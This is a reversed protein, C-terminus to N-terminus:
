PNPQCPPGDVMGGARGEVVFGLLVVVILTVLSSIALTVPPPPDGPIHPGAATLAAAGVVMGGVLFAKPRSLQICHFYVVLAVVALRLELALAVPMDRWLGFGLRASVQGLIPLDPVHVILDLAFHSFVALALAWALKSRRPARHALFFWGATAALASWIISAVLGHSYPFVFTFFRGSGTAEAVSVSEVGLIVLMWLLLDAFLAAFLLTGLHLRPEFRKVVLGAGIHGVFVIRRSSRNRALMRGNLTAPRSSRRALNVPSADTADAQYEDPSGNCESPSFPLHRERLCGLFASCDKEISASFCPRSPLNFDM